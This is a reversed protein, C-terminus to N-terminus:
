GSSLKGLLASLWTTREHYSLRHHSRQDLMLRRDTRRHRPTQGLAPSLGSRPVPHGRVVALRAAHRRLRMRGHLGWRDPQRRHRHDAARGLRAGPARDPAAGGMGQRALAPPHGSQQRQSATSLDPLARRGLADVLADQLRDLDSAREDRYKAVLYFHVGFDTIFRAHIALREHAAFSLMRDLLANLEDLSDHSQAEMRAMWDSDPEGDPNLIVGGYDIIRWSAFPLDVRRLADHDRATTPILTSQDDLLQWLSRQRATMFSHARGDALYATPRLAEESPCKRHSQFLTDDLDLFVLRRV